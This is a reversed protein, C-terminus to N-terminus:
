RAPAFSLFVPRSEGIAVRHDELVRREGAQQCKYRWRALLIRMSSLGIRFVENTRFYLSM